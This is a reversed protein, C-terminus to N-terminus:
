ADHHLRFTHNEESQFLSLVQKEFHLDLREPAVCVYSPGAAWDGLVIRWATRNEFTIPHIGPRHTHGHILLSCRSNLLANEVAVQNVDMITASKYRKGADSQSRGARALSQRQSFSKNLFTERWLPEDVIARHRQHNIDDTCLKDGHQLLILHGSIEEEAPEQLLHCGTSNCFDQGLLFDRNGTMLTIHTGSEHLKKLATCVNTLGLAEASDDGIWYEFLDGQIYLQDIGELDRTFTEFSELGSSDEATLHLDSILVVPGTIDM